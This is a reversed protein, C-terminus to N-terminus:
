PQSKGSQQVSVWSALAGALAIHPALALAPVRVGLIGDTAPAAAAAMEASGLICAAGAGHSKARGLAVHDCCEMCWLTAHM